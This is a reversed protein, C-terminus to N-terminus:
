RNLSQMFSLFRRPSRQAVLNREEPLEDEDLAWAGQSAMTWSDLAPSITTSRVASSSQISAGRHRYPNEYLLLLM